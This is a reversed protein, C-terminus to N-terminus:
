PRAATPWGAFSRVFGPPAFFAFFSAPEAGANAVSVREGVGIVALGGPELTERQGGSQLVVRGERAVVIAESEGHEHEPMAGGPPLTVYAAGIREESQEEDGILVEVRPGNDFPAARLPGTGVRVIKMADEKEIQWPSPRNADRDEAEGSRPRLRHGSGDDGV